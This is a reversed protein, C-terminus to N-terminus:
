GEDKEIRTARLERNTGLIFLYILYSPIRTINILLVM